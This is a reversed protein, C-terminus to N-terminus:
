ASRGQRYRTLLNVFKEARAQKDSTALQTMLRAVIEKAGSEQVYQRAESLRPQGDVYVEAILPLPDDWVFGYPGIPESFEMYDQSRDGAFWLRRGNETAMMLVREEVVDGLDRLGNFGALAAVFKLVPFLSQSDACSQSDTGLCVNIGAAIMKGVPAIGNHLKLNSIPNHSVSARRQALLAIDQDDIQAAHAVITRESLVGRSALREIGSMGWQAMSAERQVPSEEAHVEIPSDLEQALITADRLLGDSCWVPNSLALGVKVRQGPWGRIIGAVANLQDEYGTPPQVLARMEEPLDAMPIAKPYRPYVESTYCLSPLDSIDVFVWAYLGLAEYAHAIAYIHERTRLGIVHDIIATNGAALNELGTVLACAAAEEPTLLGTARASRDVFWAEFPQSRTIGKWPASPSHLHANVFGPLTTILNGTRGVM